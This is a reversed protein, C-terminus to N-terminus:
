TKSVRITDKNIEVKYQVLNTKAPGRTPKGELNFESGHSSCRAIGNSFSDLAAGAHTCRRSFGLILNESFRFLLIGSTDFDNGPTAISGNITKLKNFPSVNIDFEIYNKNVDIFDDDDLDEVNENKVDDCSQLVSLTLPTSCLVAFRCAEGIFDGRKM